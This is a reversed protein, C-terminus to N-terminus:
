NILAEKTAIIVDKVHPASNDEFIRIQSKPVDAVTVIVVNLCSFVPGEMTKTCIKARERFQQFDREVNILHCIKMVHPQYYSFTNGYM